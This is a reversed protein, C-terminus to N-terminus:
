QASLADFKIIIITCMCYNRTAEKASGYEGYSM